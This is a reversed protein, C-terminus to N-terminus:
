DFTILNADLTSTQNIPKRELNQTEILNVNSNKNSFSTFVFKLFSVNFTQRFCLSLLTCIIFYLIVFIFPILVLMPILTNWNSLTIIEHSMLGITKGLTTFPKCFLYEFQIALIQFPNVKWVVDLKEDIYYSECEKSYSSFRFQKHLFVISKHLINWKKPSKCYIPKLDQIEQYNKGLEMEQITKFYIYAFDIVWLTFIIYKFNM